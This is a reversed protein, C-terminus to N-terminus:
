SRIRYARVPLDRGRLKQPGLDECPFAEDLRRHTEAGLTICGPEGIGELRAAVNVADGIVAYKLRDPSGVSGVVVRGSNNAVRVEPAFREFREGRTVRVQRLLELGASVARSAHDAHSVPAGFIAMVSDGIFEMVTGGHEFVAHTAVDYYDGLFSAVVSPHHGEAFRTFGKVDGFLISVEREELGVAPRGPDKAHALITEAVEPSHYRELNSRVVREDVLQRILDEQKLRIAIVNAIANLLVLDDRRFAYSRLRSDLYVVGLVEEGDWLPSCLASRINHLQISAGSRFRPDHLADSTLLGVKGSAVERVISSSVSLEAPDLSGRERHRLAGPVFEGTEADRLLLAGREANVCDFVLSIAMESLDELSSASLATRGLQYLLMLERPTDGLETVPLREEQLGLGALAEPASREEDGPM